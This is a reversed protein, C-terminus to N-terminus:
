GPDADLEQETETVLDETEELLQELETLQDQDTPCTAGDVCGTTVLAVVVALGAWRDRSM